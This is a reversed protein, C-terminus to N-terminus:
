SKLRLVSLRQDDANHAVDGLDNTATPRGHSTDYAYDVRTQRFGGAELAVYTRTSGAKVYVSRRSPGGDITNTGTEHLWPVNISKSVVASRM